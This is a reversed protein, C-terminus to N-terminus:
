RGNAIGTLLSGKKENRGTGKQEAQVQKQIHRARFGGIQRQVLNASLSL